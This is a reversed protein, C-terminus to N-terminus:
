RHDHDRGPQIQGQGHSQSQGQLQSQTAGGGGGGTQNINSGSKSIGSGLVAMGAVFGGAHVVAPGLGGAYGGETASEWHQTGDKNPIVTCNELDPKSPDTALPPCTENQDRIKSPAFAHPNYKIRWNVFHDGEKHSINDMGSCAPLSVCLLVGILVSTARRAGTKQHGM